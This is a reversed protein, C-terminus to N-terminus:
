LYLSSSINSHSPHTMGTAAFHLTRMVSLTQHSTKSPELVQVAQRLWRLTVMLM